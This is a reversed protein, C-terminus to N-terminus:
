QCLEGTAIYPFGLVEDIYGQEAPSAGCATSGSDEFWVRFFDSLNPHFLDQSVEPDPLGFARLYAAFFADM